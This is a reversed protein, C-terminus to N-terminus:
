FYKYLYTHFNQYRAHAEYAARKGERQAVAAYRVFYEACVTGLLVGGLCQPEPQGVADPDTLIEQYGTMATNFCLEGDAIGAKGSGTGLFVTGDALAIAGSAQSAFESQNKDM